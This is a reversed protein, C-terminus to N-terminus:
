VLKYIESNYLIEDRYFDKERKAVGEVHQFTNYWDITSTEPECNQAFDLWINFIESDTMQKPEREMRIEVFRRESDDQVFDRM